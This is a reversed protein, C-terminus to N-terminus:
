SRNFSLIKLANKLWYVESCMERELKKIELALLLKQALVSHPIMRIAERQEQSLIPRKM